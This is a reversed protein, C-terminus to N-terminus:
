VHARGIEGPQKLVMRAVFYAVLFVALGGYDVVARVVGNGSPKPPASDETM